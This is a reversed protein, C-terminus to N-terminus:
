SLENVLTVAAPCDPIQVRNGKLKARAFVAFRTKKEFVAAFNCFFDWVHLHICSNKRKTLM